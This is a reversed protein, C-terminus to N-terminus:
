NFIQHLCLTWHHPPTHINSFWRAVSPDLQAFVRQCGFLPLILNFLYLSIVLCRQSRYITPYICALWLVVNPDIYLQPLYAIYIAVSCISMIQNLLYMSVMSCYVIIVSCRQSRTPYICTLCGFLALIQIYYTPAFVRYIYGGIMSLIQNLLYMSVVLCRQPRTLCYVVVVSCRQSRTPCICVSVVLCRYVRTLCTCALWLFLIINIFCLAKTQFKNEDFINANTFGYVYTYM